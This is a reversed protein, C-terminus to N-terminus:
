FPFGGGLGGLGGTLKSMSSQSAEEAQRLAENTAAVVLDELMEVDDPDVVEQSLKVRLVEKKGSVTVEVAGGGASATFEKTELEKANEEMQRQMKQAQKMLNNMNGPMGGAFGGHKAM